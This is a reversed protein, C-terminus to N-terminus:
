LSCCLMNLPKSAVWTSSGLALESLTSLSSRVLCTVVSFPVSLLSVVLGTSILLSSFASELPGPPDLAGCKYDVVLAATERTCESGRPLRPTRQVRHCCQAGHFSCCSCLSPGALRSALAGGSGAAPWKCAGCWSWLCVCHPGRAGLGLFEM